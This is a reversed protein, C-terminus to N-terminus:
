VERLLRYRQPQQEVHHLAEAMQLRPTSALPWLVYRALGSNNVVEHGAMARRRCCATERSLFLAATAYTRAAQSRLNHSPVTVPDTVRRQMPM